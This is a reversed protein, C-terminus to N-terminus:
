GHNARWRLGHFQCGEQGYPVTNTSVQFGMWKLWKVSKQYRADVYNYLIDYGEKIGFLKESNAKLLKIFSLKYKDLNTSSLWWPCGEGGIIAVPVVGMIGVVDGNIVIAKTMTSNRVSSEIAEIPTHGHSARVEEVDELRMTNALVEIHCAETDIVEIEL